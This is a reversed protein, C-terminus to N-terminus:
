TSKNPPDGRGTLSAVQRNPNPNDTEETMRNVCGQLSSPSENAVYTHIPRNTRHYVVPHHKTYYDALNTKGSEWYVYFQDRNTRDRLWHFRMDMAKSRKQKM